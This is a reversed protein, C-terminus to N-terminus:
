KVAQKAKDVSEDVSISVARVKGEWESKNQTFITQIDFSQKISPACWAAWFNLLLVQGEKTEISLDAGSELDKLGTLKGLQSDTSVPQVDIQVLYTYPNVNAL